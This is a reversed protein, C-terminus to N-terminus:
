SLDLFVRVATEKNIISSASHHRRFGFQNNYLLNFDTLYLIYIGNYVVREYLKSFASLISIPRYNEKREPDGSKFILLVKAIKLTDPSCGSELSLKIVKTLPEVIIEITLKIIRTPIKDFGPAKGTAFTHVIEKLEESVLPRFGLPQYLPSMLYDQFNASSPAIKAALNPGINSFYKCFNNAM